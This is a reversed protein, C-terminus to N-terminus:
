YHQGTTGHRNKINSYRSSTLKVGEDIDTSSKWGLDKFIKKIILRMDLIMDLVIKLLNLKPKITEMEEVLNKGYYDKIHNNFTTTKLIEQLDINKVSM